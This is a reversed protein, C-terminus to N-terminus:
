QPWRRSADKTRGGDASAWGVAVASKTSGRPRAFACRAGIPVSETCAFCCAALSAFCSHLVQLGYSRCISTKNLAVCVFRERLFNEGCPPTAIDQLFITKVARAHPVAQQQNLFPMYGAHEHTQSPTNLRSTTVLLSGRM